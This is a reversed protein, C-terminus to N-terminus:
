GSELHKLKEELTSIRNYLDTIQESKIELNRMLNRNISAQTESFRAHLMHNEASTLMFKEIESPRRRFM